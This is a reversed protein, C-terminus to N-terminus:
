QAGEKAAKDQVYSAEPRRVIESNMSRRSAFASQEIKACLEPPVRVNFQPDTRSM